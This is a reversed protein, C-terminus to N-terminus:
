RELARAVRLWPVSADPRAASGRAEGDCRVVVAWDDLSTGAAELRERLRRVAKASPEGQVSVHAMHTEAIASAAKVLPRPLELRRGMSRILEAGHEAHGHSTIRGNMRRTTDPKGLDHFLTALVLVARWDSDVGREDAYTAALDAAWLSHVLVDGEPHWRPDQPTVALAELEPVSDVIGHDRIARSPIPEERAIGLLAAGVERDSRIGRGSM